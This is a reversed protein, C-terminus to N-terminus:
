NSICLKKIKEALEDNLDEKKVRFLWNGGVTAPINMRGESGMGLYDQIPIIKIPADSKMVASILAKNVDDFRGIGFIKRVLRKRNESLSEFWGSITDNDHNGTYAVDRKPEKIKKNKYDVSLQLINMGLFGYKEVAMDAKPSEVGLNEAIVGIKLNGKVKDFFDNGPGKHCLFKKADHASNDVSYYEFFGCFHDIRIMDYMKEALRFRNIWWKYDNDRMKDWNYIPNGWVQGAKFLDDPPLCSVRKPNNNEDIQFLEREAWTEASDMAVYIPMDGIIKIGKSNAYKKLRYWQEFFKFQIFKYFDIINKLDEKLEDLLEKDRNKLKEDWELWSQYHNQEKLAMFLAYEDLWFANELVFKEYEADAEFRFFACRLLPYRYFFLKEYDIKEPNDGFFYNDVEEKELLGEDVLTDIDVFYPNGAFASSSQYPSDGFGTPNQPLIQWYEQGTKKLFDVFEFAEEGLNGIGYPSPLSSIHMLIGSNGM